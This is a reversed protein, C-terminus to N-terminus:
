TNLCIMFDFHMGFDHFIEIGRAKSFKSLAFPKWYNISRQLKPIIDEFTKEGPKVNGFYVGLTKVNTNTWEIGWPTDTRNKWGGVWLGKTKKLNIKAGSAM